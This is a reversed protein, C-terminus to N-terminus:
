LESIEEVNEYKFESYAKKDSNSETKLYTTKEKHKIKCLYL